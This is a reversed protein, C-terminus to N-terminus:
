SLFSEGYLTKREFDDLVPVIGAERKRELADMVLHRREEDTLNPTIEAATRSANYEDEWSNVAYNDKSLYHGYYEHAIVAQPSMVSRPHTENSDENPLVDGNVIIKDAADSYSTHSYEDSNFVFVNEDAGIHRILKKIYEIEDNTLKYYRSKRSGKINRETINRETINLNM